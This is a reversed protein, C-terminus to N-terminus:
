PSFLSSTLFHVSLNIEASVWFALIWFLKDWVLLLNCSNSFAVLCDSLAKPCSSDVILSCSCSSFWNFRSYWFTHRSCPSDDCSARSKACSICLSDPSNLSFLSAKSFTSFAASSRSVENFSAPSAASSAPSPNVVAFPAIASNAPFTIVWATSFTPSSTDANHSSGSAVSSYLFM